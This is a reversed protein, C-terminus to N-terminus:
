RQRVKPPRMSRRSLGCVGARRYGALQTSIALHDVFTPHDPIGDDYRQYKPGARGDGRFWETVRPERALDVLSRNPCCGFVDGGSRCGAGAAWARAQARNTQPPSLTRFLPHRRNRSPEAMPELVSPHASAPSPRIRQRSPCRQRLGQQEPSNARQPSVSRQSSQWAGPSSM